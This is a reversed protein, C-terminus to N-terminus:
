EDNAKVNYAFLRNDHRIYLRGGCVVPHAWSSDRSGEPLPFESVIELGTPSIKALGAYRDESVMYMMGEAYTSSGKRKRENRGGVGYAAWKTEGTNWDLCIWQGKSFSHAAGYLFGDILLVGGHHNDLDRSPWVMEVSAKDGQVVVKLLESGTTGYGGSIFVKGDHFLPMLSNADHETKFPHEFLLRGNDADVGILAKATMAFIIRLGGFEVLSTTAYATKQGTSEAKWVVEGTMKNLAVVSAEPGGPCTIVRDGDILLSEALAWTINQAQFTELSNISWIKDGTTANLCIISGVPSQHYLRDGDITPTGRTGPHSGTYAAGNEVQWKVNGDMDIASITTAKDDKNGATYILGGAMSVSSYGIGIKECTWDLPPGGDPWEKLLGTDSSINDGNPGHFRPWNPGDGPTVTTPTITVPPAAM